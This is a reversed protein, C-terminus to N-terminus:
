NVSSKSSLMKSYIEERLTKTTNEVMLIRKVREREEMERMNSEKLILVNNGFVNVELGCDPCDEKHGPIPEVSLARKCRPCVIHDFGSLSMESDFRSRFNVRKVYPEMPVIEEGKKFPFNHKMKNQGM